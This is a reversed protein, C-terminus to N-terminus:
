GMYSLDKIEAMNIVLFYIRWLKQRCNSRCCGLTRSSKPYKGNTTWGSLMSVMTPTNTLQPQLSCVEHRRIEQCLSHVNFQFRVVVSHIAPPADSASIATPKACPHITPEIASIVPM